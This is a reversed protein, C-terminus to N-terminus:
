NNCILTILEDKKVNIKGTKGAKRININKMKAYNQLVDLKQKVLENEKFEKNIGLNEQLIDGRIFKDKSMLIETHNILTNLLITANKINYKTIFQIVNNKRLVININFIDGYMKLMNSPVELNNSFVNDADSKKFYKISYDYNKYYDEKNFKTIIDLKCKKLMEEKINEPAINFVNSMYSFIAKSYYDGKNEFKQLFLKNNTDVFKQMFGDSSVIIPLKEKIKLKESKDLINEKENCIEKTHKNESHPSRISDNKQHFFQKKSKSTTFENKKIPLLNKGNCFEKFLRSDSYRGTRKSQNDVVITKEFLQDLQQIIEITEINRFVNEVLDRFKNNHIM